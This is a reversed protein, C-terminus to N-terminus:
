ANWTGWTLKTDTYGKAAALTDVDGQARATQEATILGNVREQEAEFESKTVYNQEVTSLRDQLPNIYTTVTNINAESIMGVLTKNEAVDGIKANINNVATARETAEAQLDDTLKKEAAEARTKEASVADSIQEAVDDAKGELVDIKGEAAGMRGNLGDIRDNANDIATNVGTIAAKRDEIEQAIAKANDEIGGVMESAASGHEEVWVALEKISDMGETNNEIALKLAADVAAINKALDGEATQARTEEATILAKLDTELKVRDATETALDGAVDDIRGGLATDAAEYATKMNSIDTANKAIKGDLTSDATERATKEAAVATAIQEAISGTGGTTLAELAEVRTNMASDLENAHAKAQALIGTSENNIAKIADTNTNATSQAGQAADKAENIGQTLADHENKAAATTQYQSMNLDTIAQSLAQEAATKNSAVTQALTGVEGSLATLESANAKNSQLSTVTGKLSSIETDHGSIATTHGNVTQTLATVTSSDAKGSVATKLGEIEAQSGSLSGSVAAIKNLAGHVTAVGATDDSKGLVAAAAGAADFSSANKGSDTLNGNVDLGAFNGNTAGTVMDAKKNVVTIDAKQNIQSELNSGLGTLDSSNAKSAIANELAQKDTNHTTIDLKTALSATVDTATAKLALQAEVDEKNAKKSLDIAVSAQYESFTTNSVRTNINELLETDKKQLNEIATANANVKASVPSLAAAATAEAAAQAANAKSTADTAAEGKATAIASEVAATTAYASLDIIGSLVDWGTGNYVVNDGAKIANGNSDFGGATKINWVHGLVPEYDDDTSILDSYTNMSGQYSFVKVMDEMIGDVDERLIDVQDELTDIATGQKTIAAKADAVDTELTGVKGSLALVDAVVDGTATQTALERLSLKGAADTVIVYATTENEGVVTIYQGPYALVGAIYAEAAEVSAFVSNADLPLPNGRAISVGVDWRAGKSLKDFFDTKTMAM